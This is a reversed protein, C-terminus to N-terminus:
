GPLNVILSLLLLILLIDHPMGINSKGHIETAQGGPGAKYEQGTRRGTPMLERMLLRTFIILGSNSGGINKHVIKSCLKSVIKTRSPFIVYM